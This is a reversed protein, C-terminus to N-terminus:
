EKGVVELKLGGALVIVENKPFRSSVVNRIVACDEGSLYDSSSIVLADGDKLSLRHVDGLFRIEPNDVTM